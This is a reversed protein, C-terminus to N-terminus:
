QNTRTATHQRERSDHNSPQETKNGTLLKELPQVNDKGKKLQLVKHKVLFSHTKYLLRGPKTICRTISIVSYVM